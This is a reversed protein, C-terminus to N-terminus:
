ERLGSAIMIEKPMYLINQGPYNFILSPKVATMTWPNISMKGSRYISTNGSIIVLSITWFRDLATGFIWLGCMFSFICFRRCLLFSSLKM